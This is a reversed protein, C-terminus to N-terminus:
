VDGTNKAAVAYVSPESKWANLWGSTQTLAPQDGIYYPNKLEKFVENCPVSDPSIRCAALPSELKVLSGNVEQKLKEWSAVSPWTSDGPRVRRFQNTFLTNLAASAFLPYGGMTFAPLLMTGKLFKRRNM